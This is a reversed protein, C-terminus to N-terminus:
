PSASMVGAMETSEATSPRLTMVGANSFNMRGTVMPTSVPNNKMWRRPVPLMPLNNPGIVNSHNAARATSPVTLM